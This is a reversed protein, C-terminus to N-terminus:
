RRELGLLAAPNEKGMRDLEQDTFGKRRLMEYFVALGDPPLANGAQGLDSSLIAHEPGIARIQDAFRDIKAQADKGALTGACFEIFAGLGIAERAQEVTLATPPAMGHTAVMHAIGLRRGERFMMLAEAASVHGSALVFGHEAVAAIVARTEPLLAGDGSVRVFPLNARNARVQNEADFTSMWVLRGYGGNMQAMHAIAHPNMGGVPLNLDVGGFVELGPVARRALLALGATPDYHNKLVIARMHRASALRAAELGDLSRPVSDPDSHVHIDIAGRLDREARPTPMAPAAAAARGPQLWRVFWETMSDDFVRTHEHGVNEEVQVAFKEPAGAAAYARRASAECERVGAMPTRPDSDGAIVLFPRPAALALMAPGDFQGYIGPAVRDYFRRVFAASVPARAEEAAATIADRITWARSDWGSHDLAWGFSQVGHGAVAAGIRDDVAAALYTEIAGKSFGALGVRAGDVDPRTQLYDITRMVDWVTDYFFPHEGGARFARLIANSYPSSAPGAVAKTREGHYRADIAAAVFGRRALAALLGAHQEKRGGTGHLFIVAPRRGAGGEPKVVIMPIRDGAEAAFTVHEETLGPEPAPLASTEPELAVRPRDILELFAARTDGSGGQHAAALCLTSAAAILAAATKM